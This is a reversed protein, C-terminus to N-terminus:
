RMPPFTPKLRFCRVKLKTSFVQRLINASEKGVRKEYETLFPNNVSFYDLCIDLIWSSQIPSIAESVKNLEGVTLRLTEYTVFSGPEVYFGEDAFYPEPCSVRLM